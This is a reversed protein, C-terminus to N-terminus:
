LICAKLLKAYADSNFGEEVVHQEQQSLHRPKESLIMSQKFTSELAEQSVLEVDLDLIEFLRKLNEISSWFTSFNLLILNHKEGPMGVRNIRLANLNNTNLEKVAVHHDRKESWTGKRARELFSHAVEYPDRVIHVVNVQEAIFQSLTVSASQMFNPRKDGVFRKSSVRELVASNGHSNLTRLVGLSQFQRIAEPTFMSPRYGFRASFLETFLGVDPHLKLLKGLATTGSRPAGSVFIYANPHSDVPTKLPKLFPIDHVTKPESLQGRDLLSDSMQKAAEFEGSFVAKNIQRIEVARNM